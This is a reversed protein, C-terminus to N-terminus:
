LPIITVDLEAGVWCRHFLEHFAYVKVHVEIIRSVNRPDRVVWSISRHGNLATTETISHTFYTWDQPINITKEDVCAGDPRSDQDGNDTNAYATVSLVQAGKTEVSASNKAKRAAEDRGKLLDDIDEQDTKQYAMHRWDSGISVYSLALNSINM